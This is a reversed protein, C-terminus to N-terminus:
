DGASSAELSWSAAFQACTRTSLEHAISARLSEAEELSAAPIRRVDVGSSRAVIVVDTRASSLTGAQAASALSDLWHLVTRFPGAARPEVRVLYLAAAMRANNDQDM